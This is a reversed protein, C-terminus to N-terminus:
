WRLRRGRFSISLESALQRRPLKRLLLSVQANYPAVILIDELTILGVQGKKNTWTADRLLLEVLEAM